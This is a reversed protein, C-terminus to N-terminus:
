RAAIGRLVEETHEGLRPSPRPAGRLIPDGLTKMEGAVPHRVAPVMGRLILQELGLTRDLTLVPAASVGEAQLRELWAAAPRAALVAGILGELEARNKVRLENSAWRADEAWEPHGLARSFGKWFRETFVGIVIWGDAVRYAGYPVCSMHGTGQPGPVRGDAFWYQALYTAMATLCDLLSLELRAGKGTRSRQLLAGLIGVASYIGGALDGLPIGLRAPPGGPEGTMSLAGSWAQVVLDFAPLDRMPGTEGFSTLSCLVLKPNLAHLRAHGIGLRDMVGPRFNDLVVDAEAALRDFAERAKPDRLDLVVSKKGRNVAMFYASEGKVFPPGMKRIEDGEPPEIKIVEAGLDALIMSAYPGALMRTLDLVRFGQLMTSPYHPPAPPAIHISPRLHDAM